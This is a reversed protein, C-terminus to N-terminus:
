VGEAVVEKVEPVMRKLLNEIGAKLTVTSSPCGSCSGQLQVKVIGEEFSRFHIAGGDQEVAPRVYEDLIEKIKRIEESDNESYAQPSETNGRIVPKDSELYHKIFTRLIDSIEFWEIGKDKTITVFNAAIFVRRVFSFKFIELALPSTEASQADPFDFTDGEQVLMYNAVFKMSNPNPNSETYIHVFRKYLDKYTDQTDQM